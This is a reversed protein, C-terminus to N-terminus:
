ESPNTYEDLGYYDLLYLANPHNGGFYKLLVWGIGRPVKNKFLAVFQKCTDSISESVGHYINVMFISLIKSDQHKDVAGELVAKKFIFEELWTPAPTRGEQRAVIIKAAGIVQPFRFLCGRLDFKSVQRFNYTYPLGGFLTFFVRNGLRIWFKKEKKEYETFRTNRGAQLFRKAYGTNIENDMFLCAITDDISQIRGQASGIRRSIIGPHLELEQFKKRFADIHEKTLVSRIKMALYKEAHYRAGNDSSIGKSNPTTLGQKDTYFDEYRKLNMINYFVVM